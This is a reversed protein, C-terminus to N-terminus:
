NILDVEARVHGRRRRVRGALEGSHVEYALVGRLTLRTAGLASENLGLVMDIGCM